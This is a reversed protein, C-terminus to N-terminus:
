SRILVSSWINNSIFIDESSDNISKGELRNYRFAAKQFDFCFQIASMKRCTEEVPQYLSATDIESMKM